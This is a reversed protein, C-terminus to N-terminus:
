IAILGPYRVTYLWASRAPRDLTRIGSYVMSKAVKKKLNGNLIVYTISCRLQLDLSVSNREMTNHM